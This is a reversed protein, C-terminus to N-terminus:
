VNNHLINEGSESIICYFGVSYENPITVVEWDESQQFPVLLTITYDTELDKLIIQAVKAYCNAPDAIAKHESIVHETKVTFCEDFTNIAFEDLLRGKRYFKLHVQMYGIDHEM